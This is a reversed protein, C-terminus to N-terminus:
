CVHITQKTDKLHKYLAKVAVTAYVYVTTNYLSSFALIELETGWTGLEKLKSVLLYQEMPTNEILAFLIQNEKM